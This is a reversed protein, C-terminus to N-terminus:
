KKFRQSVFVAIKFQPMMMLKKSKLSSTSFSLTTTRLARINRTLWKSKVMPLSTFGTKLSGIKTTIPRTTSFPPRFKRARAILLSLMSCRARVEIIRGLKRITSRQSVHRSRGTSFSPTWARLQHSARLSQVPSWRTLGWYAAKPPEETLGDQRDRARTIVM